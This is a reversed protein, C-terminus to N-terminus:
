LSQAALESRKAKYDRQYQSKAARCPECRCGHNTYMTFTGHRATPLTGHARADDLNMAPTGWALNVARNDAQDGNLHRVLPYGHPNQHFARAVLRHVKHARKVGDLYLKVRRYGKSDTQQALMLGASNRVQGRDSVEYGDLPRWHEATM